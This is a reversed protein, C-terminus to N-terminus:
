RIYEDVAKKTEDYDKLKVRNILETKLHSFFNEAVACDFCNGKRSMSPKIGYKEIM